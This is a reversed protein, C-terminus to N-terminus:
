NKIKKIEQYLKDDYFTLKNLLEKEKLSLDPYRSNSVKNKHFNFFKTMDILLQFNKKFNLLNENMNDLFFIFDLKKLNNLSDLLHINNVEIAPDPYIKESSFFRVYNNDLGQSYREELFNELTMFKEGNKEFDKKNRFYNSLYRDKPDRISTFYFYNDKQSNRFAFEYPFHGFILFYKKLQDSSFDFNEYETYYGINYNRLGFNVKFFFDITNGGSQPPHIFIFKQYKKKSFYYNPYVLNTYLKHIQKKFIMKLVLYNKEIWIIIFKSYGYLFSNVLSQSYSLSVENRLFILNSKSM